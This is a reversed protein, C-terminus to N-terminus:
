AIGHHRQYDDWDKRKMKVMVREGKRNFLVVQPRGVLGELPADPYSSVVNSPTGEGTVMCYWAQSITGTYLSKVVEFGLKEGVDAVATRDLWWPGVKVDFLIFDKDPRYAGGKQIGAGYGEGYLTVDDSDEFAKFWDESRLRGDLAAVLGSPLNAKDSRGGITVHSGNWHLRINTGDIKETWDWDLRSLYQLEPAAYDGILVINTDPDRKWLTNIKTYEPGFEGPHSTQTM